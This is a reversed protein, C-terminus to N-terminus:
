STSLVATDGEYLQRISFGYAVLDTLDTTVSPPLSGAFRKRLRLLWQSAIAHEGREFAHQMAALYLRPLFAQPRDVEFNSFREIASGILSYVAGPSEIADLAELTEQGVPGDVRVLLSSAATELPEFRGQQIFVEVAAIVEASWHYFYDQFVIQAGRKLHPGFELLLEKYEALWKPADVHMLAITGGPHRAAKLTTRHALLLGSPLGSMYHQFIPLFDIRGGDVKLLTEVKGRKADARVYNALAGGEACAFVDFAHFIAGTTKSPRSSNRSLGDAICRASRGLYSGFELVIDGEALRVSSALDLLLDQEIDEIMGPIQSSAFAM